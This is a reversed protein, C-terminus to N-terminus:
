FPKKIQQQKKDWVAEGRFVNWIDSCLVLLKFFIYVVESEKFASM